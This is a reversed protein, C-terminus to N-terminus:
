KPKRVSRGKTGGLNKVTGGIGVKKMAQAAADMDKQPVQLVKQSKRSSKLRQAAKKLGEATGSREVETAKKATAADLRRNGSLPKETTGSKGAAKAKARKHSQSEAMKNGERGKPNPHNPPIKRGCLSRECDM